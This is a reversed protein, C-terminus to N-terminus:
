GRTKKCSGKSHVDMRYLSLNYNNDVLGLLVESVNTYGQLKLQSNLWSENRGIRKLNNKIIRGDMVVETLYAEEPPCIGVDSPTTPRKEATPMITLRGNYEFVATQIHSIDFFGEQRCMLLFESLDLKAKKMNERYIKGKNLIITPTGNFYKRLAPFKSIALNISITFILYVVMAILPKQPDELNTALEAAISGITIGSIYDFVDLQSIQRHGMLKASIFLVTVSLTATLATKTLEM